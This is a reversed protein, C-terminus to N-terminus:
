RTCIASISSFLSSNAFNCTPDSRANGNEERAPSHFSRTHRLRENLHNAAARDLVHSPGAGVRELQGDQANQAQQVAKQAKADSPQLFM